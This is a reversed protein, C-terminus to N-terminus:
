MNFTRSLICNFSRDMSIWITVFFIGIAAGFSVMSDSLNDKAAAMLPSSKIGDATKKNYRYMVYYIYNNWM